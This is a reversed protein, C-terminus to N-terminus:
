LNLLKQDVNIQFGNPPINFLKSIMGIRRALRLNQSGIPDYYLCPSSYLHTLLDKVMRYSLDIMSELFEPSPKYSSNEDGSLINQSGNLFDSLKVGQTFIHKRAKFANNKGVAAKLLEDCGLDERGLVERAMRMYFPHVSYDAGVECLVHGMRKLASAGQIFNPVFYNHAIVDAALHSLFGYAYASERDGKVEGLFRFGAEWNHSHGAKRKQGKGIFFDASLSGYLYELHYFHIVGSVSPLLHGMENLIRCGILTHIAPGWAWVNESFILQFLLCFAVCIIIKVFSM